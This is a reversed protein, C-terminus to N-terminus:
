AQSTDSRTIKFM